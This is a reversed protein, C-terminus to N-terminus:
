KQLWFTNRTKMTLDIYSNVKLTFNNTEAMSQMIFISPWIRALQINFYYKLKM